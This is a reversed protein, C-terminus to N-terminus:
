ITKIKLSLKENVKNAFDMIDSLLENIINEDIKIEHNDKQKGNRHVLDHRIIIHKSLKDISPFEIEFTSEYIPKIRGLNHFVINKLDDKITDEIKEFETYISNFSIKKGKYPQYNAIFKKLFIVSSDLESIFTDLLFTELVGIGSIFLQRKHIELMGVDEIYLHNLQRLQFVQNYLILHTKKNSILPEYRDQYDVYDKDYDVFLSVFVENYNKINPIKALIENSTNKFKITFSHVFGNDNKHEIIDWETQILIEYSVGIQSAFVENKKKLQERTWYNDLKM